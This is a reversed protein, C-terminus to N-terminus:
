IEKIENLIREYRKITLERNNLEEELKEIEKDYSKFIEKGVDINQLKSILSSVYSNIDGKVRSKLNSVYDRADDLFSEAEYDTLTGSKRLSSPLSNSYSIDPLEVSNIVRRIVSSLVAVELNEDGATDRLVGILDKFIQKRWNNIFEKARLSVVNEVNDTLEELANRVIGARVVTYTRSHTVIEEDYGWDDQGFISGFFRKVGGTLGSQEVKITENWTETQTDESERIERNAQSFYKNLENILTNKINLELEEVLDRFTENATLTAKQKITQLNEKRKKIEEIDSNKLQILKNQLRDIARQKFEEFKELKEKEFNKIRENIIDEKRTKVESILEKIRPIQSLKLLNEKANEKFYAPYHFQLNDFVIKENSDFDKSDFKKYISYAVASSGIVGNKKLYEFVPSMRLFEDSEFVKITHSTLNKTINDIAEYLDDRKESGFLQNDIQSAILYVERVGEKSTIRDILSLDEESMFQGSPSLILIVDCHKLLERTREERSVIPDNVGPTDIIAMDKLMEDNIKIKVAKTFPMYKGNAGVYDELKGKLEEYSKAEIKTPIDKINSSKIMEYQEYASALDSPMKKKANKLAKEKLEKEDFPKNKRKKREALDKFIEDAKQKVRREYEFYREKLNEIDENSFLEIEAEFKDGYELVSLAATMPTAAKPLISKGDFVLSNLLSSKGAKVRGVVGVKLNREKENIEKLAKQLENSKTIAYEEKLDKFEDVLDYKKEIEEYNKIKEVIM